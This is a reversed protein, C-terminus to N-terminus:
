KMSKGAGNKGVILIRSGKRISVNINKLVENTGDYSFSVDKFEISDMELDPTEGESKVYAFPKTEMFERLLGAFKGSQQLDLGSNILASIRWTMSVVANQIILYDGILLKKKVVILYSVYLLIGIYIVKDNMFDMFLTLATTKRDYKKENAIIEDMTSDYKHTLVDYIGTIRIEKAYEKLYMIRNLYKTWRTPNTNKIYLEYSM